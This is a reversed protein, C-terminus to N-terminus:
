QSAPTRHHVAVNRFTAPHRSDAAARVNTPDANAAGHRAKGVLEHRKHVLRRSSFYRAPRHARIALRNAHQAGKGLRRHILLRLPPMRTRFQSRSVMGPRISLAENFIQQSFRAALELSCAFPAFRILVIVAGVFSTELLFRFRTSIFQSGIVRITPLRPIKVLISKSFLCTTSHWLVDDMKRPYLMKM